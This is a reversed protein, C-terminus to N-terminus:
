IDRRMTSGFITMSTIFRTGLDANQGIVIPM